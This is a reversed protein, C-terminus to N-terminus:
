GKSYTFTGDETRKFGAGLLVAEAMPSLNKIDCVLHTYKCTLADFAARMYGRGQLEECTSFAFIHCAAVFITSVASGTVPDHLVFLEGYMSNLPEM